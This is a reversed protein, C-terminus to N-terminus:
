SDFKAKVKAYAVTVCLINKFGANKLVRVCERLTSGSTIIDDCLLIRENPDICNQTSEYVGRVNMVRNKISGVSHQPENEKIKRLLRRVPIDLIDAIRIALYESQDYDRYKSMKYFAPVYAVCSFKINQDKIKISKIMDSAFSWDYERRGKFKYGLIANKVKREYAFPSICITDDYLYKVKINYKVVKACEECKVVANDVMGNCYPCRDPFLASWIKDVLSGRKIHM